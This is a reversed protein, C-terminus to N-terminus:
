APWAVGGGGGFKDRRRSRRIPAGDVGGGVNQAPQRRPAAGTALQDDM